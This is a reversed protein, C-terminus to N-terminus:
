DHDSNSLHVIVRGTLEDPRIGILAHRVGGAWTELDLSALRQVEEHDEIHRARGTALVSWGENMAEDVRDIEFGVVAEAELVLAKVDNTSFVIEGETFEFNVPLAVPGRESDFIVRGVGGTALHADCQERTLTNLAPHRGARGRGPPRDMEGGQLACVTTRLALAVLLLTGASLRANPSEEFYRLYAPDIGVRQALDELDIGLETRRRAVSHAVSGTRAEGSRAGTVPVQPIFPPNGSDAFAVAASTPTM